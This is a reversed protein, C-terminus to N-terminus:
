PGRLFHPSSNELQGKKVGTLSFIEARFFEQGLIEALNWIKKPTGQNWGSQGKHVSFIWFLPKKLHFNQKKEQAVKFILYTDIKKETELQKLFIKQLESSFNLIEQAASNKALLNWFNGTQCANFFTLQFTLQRCSVKSKVRVRGSQLCVYRM